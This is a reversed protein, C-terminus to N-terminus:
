GQSEAPLADPAPSVNVFCVPGCPELCPICINVTQTTQAHGATPVALAAVSATAAACTVVLKMRTRNVM